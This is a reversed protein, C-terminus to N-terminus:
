TIVMCHETLKLSVVSRNLLETCKETSMIIISGQDGIDTGAYAKSDVLRGKLSTERTYFSHNLTLLKVEENAFLAAM